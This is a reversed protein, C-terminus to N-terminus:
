EGSGVAAIKKGIGVQTASHSRLQIREHEIGMIIAWWPNNWDVPMQLPATEILNIILARVQDRYHKVEQPTPWQYHKDNLDDWSMEDVGVAFMSEFRQNIRESMMRTLLLKNVFFTATHGYYFILPHRLSIPKIYFAQESALCEFLSEYCDFTSVFYDRLLRPFSAEDGRQLNPTRSFLSNAPLGAQTAQSISESTTATKSLSPQQTVM